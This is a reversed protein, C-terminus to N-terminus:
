GFLFKKALRGLNIETVSTSRSSNKISSKESDCVSYVETNNCEYDLNISEIFESDIDYSDINNITNMKEMNVKPVDLNIHCLEDCNISQTSESVNKNDSNIEIEALKNEQLEILKIKLTINEQNIHNYSISLEDYMKQLTLHQVQLDNYKKNTDNVLHQQRNIQKIRHNNLEKLYELRNYISYVALLISIGTPIFINKTNMMIISTIM